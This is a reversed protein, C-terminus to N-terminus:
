FVLVNGQQYICKIRSAFPCADLTNVATYYGLMTSQNELGNGHMKGARTQTLLRERWANMTYHGVM